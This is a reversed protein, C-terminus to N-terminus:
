VPRSPGVAYSTTTSAALFDAVTSAVVGNSELFNGKLVVDAALGTVSEITLNAVGVTFQGVYEGPALKIVDGATAGLLAATLEAASDVLWVNTDSLHLKEVNALLDSGGAASSLTFAQTTSNWGISTSPASYAVNSAM